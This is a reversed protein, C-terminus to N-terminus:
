AINGIGQPMTSCEGAVSGVLKMSGFFEVVKNTGIATGCQQDWQRNCKTPELPQEGNDTGSATGGSTNYAVIKLAQSSLVIPRCGEFSSSPRFLFVMAVNPLRLHCCGPYDCCKCHPKPSKCSHGFRSVFGKSLGAVGFFTARGPSSSWQLM